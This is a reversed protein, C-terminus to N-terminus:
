LVIRRKSAEAFGIRSHYILKFSIHIEETPSRGTRRDKLRYLSGCAKKEKFNAKYYFYPAM